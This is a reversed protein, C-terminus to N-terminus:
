KSFSFVYTLSNDCSHFLLYPILTLVYQTHVVELVLIVRIMWNLLPEM